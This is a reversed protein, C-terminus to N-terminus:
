QGERFVMVIDGIQVTDGEYLDAGHARTGNLYVGNSSDLDQVRVQPGNKRFVCHRRSLLQSDIVVDAEDSRGLVTEEQELMFERPAGPGRVQELRALRVAAMLQSIPRPQGILTSEDGGSRRNKNKPVRRALTIRTEDQRFGM